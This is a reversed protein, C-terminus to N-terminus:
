LRLPLTLTAAAVAVGTLALRAAALRTLGIRQAGTDVCHAFAAAAVTPTTAGIAAATLTAAFTTRTSTDIGQAGVETADAV